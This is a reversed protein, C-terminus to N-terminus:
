SEDGSVRWGWVLHLCVGAALSDYQSEWSEVLKIVSKSLLTAQVSALLDACPLSTHARHAFGGLRKPISLRSFSQNSRSERRHAQQQRVLKPCQKCLTM